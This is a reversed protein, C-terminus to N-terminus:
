RLHAFGWTIRPDNPDNLWGTVHPFVAYIFVSHQLDLRSVVLGIDHNNLLLESGVRSSIGALTPDIRSNAYTGPSNVVVLDGPLITM